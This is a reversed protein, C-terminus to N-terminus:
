ILSEFLMEFNSNSAKQAKCCKERRTHGQEGCFECQLSKRFKILVPDSESALCVLIDITNSKFSTKSALQELYRRM